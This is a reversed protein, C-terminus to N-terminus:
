GASLLDCFSWGRDRRVREREERSLAVIFRCDGLNDAAELRYPADRLLGNVMKLIELNIFDDNGDRHVYEHRRGDLTFTVRVSGADSEWTEEVDSPRFAGRSISAWEELTRAYAGDDKYVCELDRFWVRDIDAMLLFM